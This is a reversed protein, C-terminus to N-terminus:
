RKKNYLFISRNCEKTHKKERRKEKGYSLYSISLLESIKKERLLSKLKLLIMIIGLDLNKSLSRFWNHNKKEVTALKRDFLIPIKLIISNLVLM